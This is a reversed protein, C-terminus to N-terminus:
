KPCRVTTKSACSAACVARRTTLETYNLKVLRADVAECMTQRGVNLMEWGVGEVSLVTGDWCAPDALEVFCLNEAGALGAEAFCDVHANERLDAPCTSFDGEGLAPSLARQATISLGLVKDLQRLAAKRAGNESPAAGNATLEGRVACGKDRATWVAVCRSPEAHALALALIM